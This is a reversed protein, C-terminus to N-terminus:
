PRREARRRPSLRRGRRGNRPVIAPRVVAIQKGAVVRVRDGRHNPAQAVIRVPIDHVQAADGRPRGAHGHELPQALLGAKADHHMILEDTGGQEHAAVLVRRVAHEVLRRQAPPLVVEFSDSPQAESSRVDADSM